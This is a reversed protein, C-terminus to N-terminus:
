KLKRYGTKFDIINQLPKGELFAKINKASIEIVKDQTAQLHFGGSIHPTIYVNPAKWLRHEPPLPEPDTVDLGAFLRGSELNSCLAETDIAYGRGVNLIVADDKLMELRRKNLIHHTQSTGPLSMAIVDARPLLDDLHEILHIEDLYAPKRLDKRRVGITYAGFAKARKAFEGGIDGLGLVLVTSGYISKVPGEDKWACSKQNELYAPLKKYIQMMMAFMHESIALGYAGTCNTLITQPPLLGDTYTETGASQLQLLKLKDSNRLLNVDPNGVIIDAQQLLKADAEEPSCFIFQAEPAANQLIQRHKEHVETLVIIKTPVSKM